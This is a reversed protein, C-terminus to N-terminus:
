LPNIDSKLGVSLLTVQEWHLGISVSSVISQGCKIVYSGAKCNFSFDM